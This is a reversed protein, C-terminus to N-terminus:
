KILKKIKTVIKGYNPDKELEKIDIWKYNSAEEKDISINDTSDTTFLYRIDFHYHEPLKRYENYPIIHTDIDFPLLPNNTLTLQTLDSLSTEEKIERLAAELPTLDDRDIHGGPYLYMKLEKHYLVLFKQDNKSYIFGGAVLHGNFNNWDTINENTATELYNLLIKQREHEEPFIELYSRLLEKVKEKVKEKM